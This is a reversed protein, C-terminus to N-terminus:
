RRRQSMRQCAPSGQNALDCIEPNTYAPDCRRLQDLKVRIVADNERSISSAHQDYTGDLRSFFQGTLSSLAFQSTLRDSRSTLQSSLFKYQQSANACDVQYYNLDDISMRQSVACGGLTTALVLAALRRM